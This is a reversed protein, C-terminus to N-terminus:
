PITWEKGDEFRDCYYRGDGNLRLLEDQRLEDLIDQFHRPQEGPPLMERYPSDQMLGVAMTFFKWMEQSTQAKQAFRCIDERIVALWSSFEGPEGPPYNMTIHPFELQLVNWLLFDPLNRTSSRLVIRCQEVFGPSIPDLDPSVAYEVV